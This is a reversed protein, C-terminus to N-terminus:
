FPVYSFYCGLAVHSKEKIKCKEKNLERSSVTNEREGAWKRKTGGERM